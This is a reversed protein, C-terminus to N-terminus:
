SARLVQRSERRQGPGNSFVCNPCRKQLSSVVNCIYISQCCINPRKDKENAFVKLPYKLFIVIFQQIFIKVFRIQSLPWIDQMVNCVPLRNRILRSIQEWSFRRVWISELSKIKVLPLFHSHPHSGPPLIKPASLVDLLLWRPSLRSPRAPSFSNNGNDM